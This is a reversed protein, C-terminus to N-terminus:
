QNDYAEKIQKLLKEKKINQTNWGFMAPKKIIHSIHTDTDVKYVKGSPSVWDAKTKPM